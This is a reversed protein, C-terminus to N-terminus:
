EENMPLVESLECGNKTHILATHPKGEEFGRFNDNNASFNGSKFPTLKGTVMNFISGGGGVQRENSSDINYSQYIVAYTGDPSCTDIGDFTEYGTDSAQLSWLIKEDQTATMKKWQDKRGSVLETFQIDIHSPPIKIHDNNVVCVSTAEEYVSCIPNTGSSNKTQGQIYDSGTNKKFMNWSFPNLWVAFLLTIVSFLIVNTGTFVKISKM